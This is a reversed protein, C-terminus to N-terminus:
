PVLDARQGAGSRQPPSVRLWPNLAWHGQSDIGGPPAERGGAAGCTRWARSLTTCCWAPATDAAQRPGARELALSAPLPTRSLLLLACAAQVLLSALGNRTIPLLWGAGVNSWHQRVLVEARSRLALRRFCGDKRNPRALRCCQLELRRGGSRSGRWCRGAGPVMATKSEASDSSLRKRSVPAGPCWLEAPRASWCVQPSPRAAQVTMCCATSSARARPVPCAAPPPRSRAPPPAAPSQFSAWRRSAARIAGRLTDNGSEWRGPRAWASRGLGQAAHQDDPGPFM